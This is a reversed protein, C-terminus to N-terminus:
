CAILLRDSRMQKGLGSFKRPDYMIQVRPILM